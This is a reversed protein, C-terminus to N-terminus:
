VCVGVCLARHRFQICVACNLCDRKVCVRIVCLDVCVRVDIFLVLRCVFLLCLVFSSFCVSIIYPYISVYQFWTLLRHHLPSPVCGITYDLSQLLFYVAVLLPLIKFPLDRVYVFFVSLICSSDCECVYNIEGANCWVFNADCCPLRISSM